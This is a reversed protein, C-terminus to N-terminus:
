CTKPVAKEEIYRIDLAERNVITGNRGLWPSTETTVHEQRKRWDSLGEIVLHFPIHLVLSLSLLPSFPFNIPVDREWYSDGVIM